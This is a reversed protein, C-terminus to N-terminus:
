GLAEFTYLERVRTKKITGDAQVLSVPQNEKISGRAVRGVAIRGLFTSYDLSTIQLQLTGEAIKPEPIHKLIGDLLPTIDESQTLSDNFWGNKGSGYYTPFNLQEESADLNFFLEFVAEHVEDPRCNPKDVKNIVVIPKLNLHLAKQLVFRTQPMP